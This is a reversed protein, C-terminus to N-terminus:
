TTNRYSNCGNQNEPCDKPQNRQEKGSLNPNPQDQFSLPETVAFIGILSFVVTVFVIKRALRDPDVPQLLVVEFYNLSLRPDGYHNKSKHFNSLHTEECTIIPDSM